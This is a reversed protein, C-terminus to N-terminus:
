PTLLYREFTVSLCYIVNPTNTFKYKGASAHAIIARAEQIVRQDEKALDPSQAYEDLYNLALNQKQTEVTEQTFAKTKEFGEKGLKKTSEWLSRATDAFGGKAMKGGKEGIIHVKGDYYYQFSTDKGIVNYIPVYFKRGAFRSIDYFGALEFHSFKDLAGEERYGYPSNKREAGKPTKWLNKLFNLGKTNQESTLEPKNDWIWQILENIEADTRNNNMRNKILNIEQETIKKESKVKNLLDLSGGKAFREVDGMIYALREWNTQGMRNYAKDMTFGSLSGLASIDDNLSKSHLFKEAEKFDKYFGQGSKIPNFNLGGMYNVINVITNDSISSNEDNADDKHKKSVHEEVPVLYINIGIPLGGSMEELEKESIADTLDQVEAVVLLEIDKKDDTSVKGFKRIFYKKSSDDYVEVFKDSYDSTSGKKAKGGKRLNRYEDHIKKDDGVVLLNEKFKRTGDMLSKEIDDDLGRDFFGAGHRNKTLWFDHGIQEDSLGSKNIADINEEYFKKVDRKFTEMTEPAIDEVSYNKDLFEEEENDHNTSSWLGAITYHKVAEDIREDTIPGGKAMKEENEIKTKRAVEHGQPNYINEVEEFPIHGKKYDKGYKDMVESGFENYWYKFDKKTATRWKGNDYVEYEWIKGGKAMKETVSLENYTGERETEKAGIKMDELAQEAIQKTDFTEDTLYENGEKDVIVFEQDDQEDGETDEEDEEVAEEIEEETIGEEKAITALLGVAMDHVTEKDINLDEATEKIKDSVKSYIDQVFQEYNINAFFEIGKYQGTLNIEGKDATGEFTFDGNGGEFKTVGEENKARINMDSVIAQIKGGLDKRYRPNSKKAESLAKLIEQKRNKM